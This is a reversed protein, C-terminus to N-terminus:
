EITNVREISYIGKNLKLSVDLLIEKTEIYVQDPNEFSQPETQELKSEKEMVSNFILISSILVLGLFILMLIFNKKDKNYVAM